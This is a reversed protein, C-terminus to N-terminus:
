PVGAHEFTSATPSSRNSTSVSRVTQIDIEVGALAANVQVTAAARSNLSVPRRKGNIHNLNSIVPAGTTRNTDFARSAPTRRQCTQSGFDCVYAEGSQM